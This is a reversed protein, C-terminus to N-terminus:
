SVRAITLARFLNALSKGLIKMIEMFVFAILLSVYADKSAGSIYDIKADKM